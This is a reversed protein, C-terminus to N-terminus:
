KGDNTEIKAWQRFRSIAAVNYLAFAGLHLASLDFIFFGIATLINGNKVFATMAEIHISFFYIQCTLVWVSFWLHHNSYTFAIQWDSENLNSKNYRANLVIKSLISSFYFFCILTITLYLFIHGGDMYKKENLLDSLYYTNIIYNNFMLANDSLFYADYLFIAGAISFINILGIRGFYITAKKSYAGVVLLQDYAKSKSLILTLVLGFNLAAYVLLVPIGQLSGRPGAKIALFLITLVITAVALAQFTRVM